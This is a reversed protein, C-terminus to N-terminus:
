RQALKKGIVRLAPPPHADFGQSDVEIVCLIEDGIFRERQQQLQGSFGAQALADIRHEPALLDVDGFLPGNQVNRQARGFALGDFELSLVHHRLHVGNQRLHGGEGVPHAAALPLAVGAPRNAIDDIDANAAGVQTRHHGILRQSGVALAAQVEAKDRVNVARVEVLGRLIQVGLLRQEDDRGLGEGRQFRHGIRVGGAIPRQGTQLVRCRHGPVKDRDRSVGSFHRLEADVGRIHELEPVPDAATIRHVRSYPKRRHNGDSRLIEAGHEVAEVLHVLM